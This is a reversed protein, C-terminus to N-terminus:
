GFMAGDIQLLRTGGSKGDPGACAQILLSTQKALWNRLKSLYQWKMTM